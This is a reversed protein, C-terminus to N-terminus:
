KGATRDRNLWLRRLMLLKGGSLMAAAAIGLGRALVAIEGRGMVPSPGASIALLSWYACLAAWGAALLLMYRAHTRRCLMLWVISSSLAMIALLFPSEFALTTEHM